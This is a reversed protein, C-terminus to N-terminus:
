EHIRDIFISLNWRSKNKHNAYNGANNSKINQKINPNINLTKTKM